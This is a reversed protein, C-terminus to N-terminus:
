NKQKQREIDEKLLQEVNKFQEAATGGTEILQEHADLMHKTITFKDVSEAKLIDWKLANDFEYKEKIEIFRNLGLTELLRMNHANINTVVIQEHGLGKMKISLGTIIGMFTSDMSLCEALDIVIGSCGQEIKELLYKKIQHSNQFTGRGVVRIFFTNDAYATYVIDNNM